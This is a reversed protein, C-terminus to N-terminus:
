NKNPLCCSIVYYIHSFNRFSLVECLNSKGNPCFCSMHLLHDNFCHFFKDRWRGQPIEMRDLLSEFEIIKTKGGSPHLMPSSFIAGKKVGGKPVRVTFYQQRYKAQFLFGNKMNEHATMTVYQFGKEVDNIHIYGRSKVMNEDISKTALTGTEVKTISRNNVTEVFSNEIEDTQTRSVIVRHRKPDEGPSKNMHDLRSPYGSTINTTHRDLEDILENVHSKYRKKEIDSDTNKILDKIQAIEGLIERRLKSARKDSSQNSGNQDISLYENRESDENIQTFDTETEFIREFTDKLQLDKVKENEVTGTTTESMIHHMKSTNKENHIITHKAPFTQGKDMKSEEINRSQILQHSSSNDVSMIEKNKRLQEVQPKLLIGDKSAFFELLVPAYHADIQRVLSLISPENREPFTPLNLAREMHGDAFMKIQSIGLSKIMIDYPDTDHQNVEYQLLLTKAITAYAEDSSLYINMLINENGDYPYPPLYKNSNRKNTRYVNDRDTPCLPDRLNNMAYEYYMSLLNNTAIM